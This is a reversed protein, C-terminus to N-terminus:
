SRPARRRADRGAGGLASRGRRRGGLRGQRSERRDPRRGQRAVAPIRGRYREIWFSPDGDGRAAWALDAEWLLGDGLLHEIPKSGDPLSRFEFDHNHWAFRFGEASLKRGLDSLTEGLARWGAVDRPRREPELYPAVVVDIGLRRAVRVLRDFANVAMDLSFHGSKVSLGHRDFLRRAAEVDDYFAGFTEVNTYGARAIIAMQEGVPPFKRASYLQMSLPFIPAM